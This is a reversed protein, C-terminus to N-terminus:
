RNRLEYSFHLIRTQTLSVSNQEVKLVLMKDWEKFLFDSVFELGTSLVM